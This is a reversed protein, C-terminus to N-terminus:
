LDLAQPNWPKDLNSKFCTLNAQTRLYCLHQPLTPNVASHLISFCHFVLRHRLLVFHKSITCHVELSTWLSKRQPKMSIDPQLMSCSIYNTLAHWLELFHSGRRAGKLIALNSAVYSAVLETCLGSVSPCPLLRQCFKSEIHNSPALLLQICCWNWILMIQDTWFKFYFM